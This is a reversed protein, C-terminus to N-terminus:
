YQVKLDQKTPMILSITARMAYLRRYFDVFGVTVFLFNNLLLIFLFYFECITFIIGPADLNMFGKGEYERVFSPILLRILVLVGIFKM